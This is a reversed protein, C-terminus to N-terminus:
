FEKGNEFYNKFEKEDIALLKIAEKKTLLKLDMFTYYNPFM